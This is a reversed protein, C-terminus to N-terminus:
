SIHIPLHFHISYKLSIQNYRLYLKKKKLFDTCFSLTGPLFMNQVCIWGCVYSSHQFNTPLSSKSIIHNHIFSEKFLHFICFAAPKNFPESWLLSLTTPHSPPDFPIFQPPKTVHLYQFANSYGSSVERFKPMPCSLVSHTIPKYSKLM